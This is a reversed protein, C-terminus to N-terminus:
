AEGRGALFSKFTIQSAFNEASTLERPYKHNYTTITQSFSGTLTKISSTRRVVIQVVGSSMTLTINGTASASITAQPTLSAVQNVNLLLPSGPVGSASIGLAILPANANIAAMIGLTAAQLNDAAQLTYQVTVNGGPLSAHSFSVVIQYGQGPTGGISIQLPGNASGGLRVTRRPSSVERNQFPRIVTELGSM